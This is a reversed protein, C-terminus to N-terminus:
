GQLIGMIVSDQFKAPRRMSLGRRTPRPADCFLNEEPSWTSRPLNNSNIHFSRQYKARSLKRKLCDMTSRWNERFWINGIDSGVVIENVLTKDERISVRKMPISNTRELSSKMISKREPKGAPLTSRSLEPASQVSPRGLSEVREPIFVSDSFSFDSAQSLRRTRHARFFSERRLRPSLMELDNPPILIASQGWEDALIRSLTSGIPLAEQDNKFYRAMTELQKERRMLEGEFIRVSLNMNARHRRRVHLMSQILDCAEISLHRPYIPKTRKIHQYLKEIDAGYPNEPDEPFPLHGCLMTYLVVGCSWIDTSPKSYRDDRLLEPSTFALSAGSSELGCSTTGIDQNADLLINELKLDRHVIGVSHLYNLGVVIQAFLHCAIPEQLRKSTVVFRFLEGGPCLDTVVGLYKDDSDIIQQLRIIRPHDLSQLIDFERLLRRKRDESIVSKEYLKIAAQKQTRVNVGVKVCSHEGRGLTSLLAYHAFFRTYDIADSKAM